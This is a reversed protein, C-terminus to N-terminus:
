PTSGEQSLPSLEIFYPPKRCIASVVGSLGDLQMVFGLRAQSAVREDVGFKRPKEVSNEGGDVEYEAIREPLRAALDFFDDFVFQGYDNPEAVEAACMGHCVAQLVAKGDLQAEITISVEDGCTKCTVGTINM